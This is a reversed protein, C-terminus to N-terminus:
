ARVPCGSLRASAGRRGASEGRSGRREARPVGPERGDTELMVGGRERALFEGEGVEGEDGLSVESVDDPHSVRLLHTTERAGRSPRSGRRSSAWKPVWKPVWRPM